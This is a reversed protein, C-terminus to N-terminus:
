FADIGFISAFDRSARLIFAEPRDVIELDFEFYIKLGRTWPDFNPDAAGTYPVFGFVREAQRIDKEM